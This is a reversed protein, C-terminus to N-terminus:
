GYIRTSTLFPEIIGLGGEIVAAVKLKKYDGAYPDFDM